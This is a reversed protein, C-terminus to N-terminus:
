PVYQQIILEVFDHMIYFYFYYTAQDEPNDKSLSSLNENFAEIFDSSTLFFMGNELNNSPFVVSRLNEALTIEYSINRDAIYFGNPQSSDNVFQKGSVTLTYTGNENDHIDSIVGFRKEAGDRVLQDAFETVLYDLTIEPEIYSNGSRDSKWCAILFICLLGLVVLLTIKKYFGRKVM